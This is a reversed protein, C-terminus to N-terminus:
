IHFIEEGSLRNIKNKLSVQWQEWREALVEPKLYEELPNNSESDYFFIGVGKKRSEELLNDSIKKPKPICIYPKDSGLSHDRAQELAKKWNKLKFEITIIKDYEDVLVMDICRSLYPVELLVTKIKDNTQLKEYCDVVMDNETM